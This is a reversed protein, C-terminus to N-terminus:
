LERGVVKETIIGALAKAEAEVSTQAASMQNSIEIKAKDIESKAKGKAAEVIKNYEDGAEKKASSYFSQTEELQARMMEAYEEKLKKAEDFAGEAAKTQGSTRAEREEFAAVYPKFVFHNLALYAVLFIVFQYFITGNIGLNTILDM